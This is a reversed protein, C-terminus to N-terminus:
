LTESLTCAKRLHLNKIWTFWYMTFLRFEVADKSTRLTTITQRLNAQKKKIKTTTTTKLNHNMQM